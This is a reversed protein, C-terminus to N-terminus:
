KQPTARSDQEHISEDIYLFALDHGQVPNGPCGEPESPNPASPLTVLKEPPWDGIYTLEESPLSLVIRGLAVFIKGKPDSACSEPDYTLSGAYVANGLFASVVAFVAASAIFLLRVKERRLGIVVSYRKTAMQQRM